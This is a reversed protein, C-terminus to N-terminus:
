VLALLPHWFMKLAIWRSIALISFVSFMQISIACFPLTQQVRAIRFFFVM